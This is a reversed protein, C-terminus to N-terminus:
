QHFNVAIRLRGNNGFFLESCRNASFAGRFGTVIRSVRLRGNRIAGSDPRAASDFRWV